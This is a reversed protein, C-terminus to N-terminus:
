RQWVLLRNNAPMEHDQALELDYEGALKQLDALDRIGMAPDRARLDEDFAANGASTFRGNYNFPGYLCFQGDADLMRGVGRFMAIVADWGMIHAVNAAFASNANCDPWPTESVDLEVPPSINVLSAQELRPKLTAMRAPTESPIWGLHPLKEAFYVAHQGTGSGIELVRQPAPWLARLVTLIPQKNRETAASFPLQQKEPTSRPM